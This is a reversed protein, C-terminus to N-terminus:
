AVSSNNLDGVDDRLGTLLNSFVFFGCVQGRPIELNLNKLKFVKGEDETKEKVPPTRDDSTGVVAHLRKVEKREERKQAGIKREESFGSVEPPPAGDWTFSANRLSIAVPLAPDIV